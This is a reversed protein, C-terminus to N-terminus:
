QTIDREYLIGLKIEKEKDTEPLDGHQFNM